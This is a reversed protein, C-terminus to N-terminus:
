AAVGLAKGVTMGPIPSALQNVAGAGMARYPALRTQQQQYLAYNKAQTDLFNAQAIAAQSKLYDLQDTAGKAQLDAVYKASAIQADTAKQAASAQRNSAYLNVAANVANPVAAKVIDATTLGGGTLGLISAVTSHSAVPAVVSPIATAAAPAAVSPLAASAVPATVAAGTPTTLAPVAGLGLSSGVTAGVIPAAGAGGAIGTDVAGLAAIDGASMSGAVPAAGGLAAAGIGATGAVTAAIEVAKLWSPQSAWGHPDNVNGSPDINMGDTNSLDLGHEKLVGALQKRQSDSLKVKNPNLGRQAFFQQYWPQQRIFANTLDVPSNQKNGGAWVQGPQANVLPATSGTAAAIEQPTLDAM